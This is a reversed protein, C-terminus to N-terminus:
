PRAVLQAELRLTREGRVVELVVEEGVQHRMLVTVLPNEEDIEDGGLSIIVDGMEIGARDAPTGRGVDTVLVGSDVALGFRAAIQPSVAYYNIGLYPREVRGDRILAQSVQAAMSSPIAFGLGEAVDGSLGSGRVIATNIGIVEGQLNVLPGGSNGHNIAADTQILGEMVWTQDILRRGTASVVGVTVTNRFDGLASGIAIVTEGPKLLSSDGLAAWAPVPGDVRIVALDSLPDAGVVEAEAKEGDAFIVELRNAGEIVHNNTLIYGDQSIIVGSGSSTPEYMSGWFGRQPQLSNLITVVAPRVRDVAEVVASTQEVRVETVPASEVDQPLALDQVSETSQSALVAQDISGVSAENGTLYAAVAYGAAGGFIAGGAGGFMLAVVVILLVMSWGLRPKKEAM